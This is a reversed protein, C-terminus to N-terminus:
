LRQDYQGTAFSTTAAAIGRLRRIIGRKSLIGFLGAILSFVVADPLMMQNWTLSLPQIFLLVISHIILLFLVMGITVGIYSLTMRAQLGKWNSPPDRQQNSQQTIVLKKGKM